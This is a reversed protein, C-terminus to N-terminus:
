LLIQCLFSLVSWIGGYHQWTVAFTLHFGKESIRWFWARLKNRKQPWERNRLPFTIAGPRCQTKILIWWFENVICSFFSILSYLLCGSILAEAMDQVGATLSMGGGGECINMLQTRLKIENGSQYDITQIAASSLFLM